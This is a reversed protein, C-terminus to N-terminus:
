GFVATVGTTLGDIAIGSHSFTISYATNDGAQYSLTATEDDKSIKFVDITNTDGQWGAGLVLEILGGSNDPDYGLSAKVVDTEGSIDYIIFENNVMKACSSGGDVSYFEGAIITPSAITKGSIFTGTIDYGDSTEDGNAFDQLM